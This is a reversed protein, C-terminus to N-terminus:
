DSSEDLGAFIPFRREKPMLFKRFPLLTIFGFGEIGFLSSGEASLFFEFEAGSVGGARAVVLM